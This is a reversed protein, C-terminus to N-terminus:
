PPVLFFTRRNEALMWSWVDRHSGIFFGRRSGRTEQADLAHSRRFKRIEGGPAASAAARAGTVADAIRAFWL